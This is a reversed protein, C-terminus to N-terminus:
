KTTFMYTEKNYKTSEDLYKDYTEEVWRQQHEDEHGRRRNRYKKIVICLVVLGVVTLALTLFCYSIPCFKKECLSNWVSFTFGAIFSSSKVICWGLSIFFNRMTYPAQACIFELGAIYFFTNIFGMMFAIGTLLGLYSMTITCPSGANNCEFTDAANMVTIFIYLFMAAGGAFWIRHQMTPLRHSFAPALILEYLLIFILQWWATSSTFHILTNKCGTMSYHVLDLKHDHWNPYTANDFTYYIISSDNLFIALLFLFVTVSLISMQIFTKVDEVQENTFPGGYKRKGLNLRSPLEDEWYTLASRNKPFKHKFSYKLVVYIQRISNSVPIHDLFHHKCMFNSCLLVTTLVAFTIKFCPLYQNTTYVSRTICNNYAEGTIASLWSGLTTSFLFWSVLSSVQYASANPIQEMALQLMNTIVPASGISVIAYSIMQLAKVWTDDESKGTATAALQIVNDFLVGLSTVVLGIIILDHLKFKWGVLWASLFASLIWLICILLHILYHTPDESIPADTTLIASLLNQQRKPSKIVMWLMCNWVLVLVVPTKLISRDQYRKICCCSVVQSSM